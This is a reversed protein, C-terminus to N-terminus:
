PGAAAPRELCAKATRAETAQTVASPAEGKAGGSLSLELQDKQQM